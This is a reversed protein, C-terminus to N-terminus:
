RANIEAKLEALTKGDMIQFHDMDKLTKWAGGWEIGHKVAIAGIIAWHGQPCDWWLNGDPGRPVADIARRYQHISDWARANTVIKGPKTRGQAYTADQEEPSRYTCVVVMKYGRAECEALFAEFRPKLEPLLDDLSRSSM